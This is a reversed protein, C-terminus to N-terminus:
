TLKEVFFYWSRLQQDDVVRSVDSWDLRWSGDRIRELKPQRVSGHAKGQQLFGREPDFDLYIGRADSLGTQVQCTMDDAIGEDQGAEIAGPV